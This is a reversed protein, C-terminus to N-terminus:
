LGLAHHTAGLHASCPLLQKSVSTLAYVTARQHQAEAETDHQDGVHTM